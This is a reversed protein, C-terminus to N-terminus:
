FQFYAFGAAAETELLALWSIAIITIILAASLVRRATDTDDKAPPLDYNGWDYLRAMATITLLILALTLGNIGMQSFSVDIGTEWGFILRSFIVGIEGVSSARFMLGAPIYFIFMLVRRTLVALPRENRINRKFTSDLIVCAASYLGWLVYTWSAGHWLGCLAFVILTNLMRCWKGRRSGGLPIYLYQTFWRNLSIHWRRFYESPSQSTYPRDFNRTLRIGMLRASGAAIESYGAFDCYIQLCFMAGACLVAFAGAESTNAYVKNVYIGLLDAVACKRFFGCLLLRIGARIDEADARRESKLQPLLKGPPEIPGAVLQPFYVVFLAYWGLHREAKFDGRYVDIVYSLTQFTYFSIGIPLLIDIFFSDSRGTLFNSVTLVTDAFFNFYKFFALIGLCVSLTLALLLKKRCPYREMLLAASYSVLTTILLLVILWPNWYMYFFYSAALLWIWRYKQPMFRDVAVVVPLFILFPLSNFSM